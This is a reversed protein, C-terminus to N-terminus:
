WTVGNASVQKDIAVSGSVGAYDASDSATVTTAAENGSASVTGTVTATDVQHGSLAVVDAVDSTLSQGSGLTSITSSGAFTFDAPGNVDTVSAGTIPFQGTNTVIVREYVTSGTLVTPGNLVGAGVDQWTVGDASVQKDISVAGTGVAVTATGIAYDVGDSVTFSFSDTGNTMSAPPTYAFSGDAYISVTGGATTPEGAVATVTLTDGSLGTAGSLLGPAGVDLVEGAIATYSPSGTAIPNAYTVIAEGNPSDDPAAAPTPGSPVTANGLYSSGGGTGGAGGTGLAGAIGSSGLVVTDGPTTCSYTPSTPDGSPNPFTGLIGVAGPNDNAGTVSADTLNAGGAGGSTSTAASGGYVPHSGTSATVSATQLPSASNTIDAQTAFWFMYWEGSTPAGDAGATGVSGGVGGPFPVFVTGGGGGGGAAVLLRDGLGFAGSRVDTAGGGGAGPTGAPSVGGAGGGNYGGGSGGAGGVNVQLTQGPTVPLTGSIEAGLGGPADPGGAGGEAGYLAFTASTVGVPVTWTAPAGTEGFTQTCTTATCSASPTAAFAAPGSVLGGVAVLTGTCLLTASAMLGVRPLIRRRCAISPTAAVPM